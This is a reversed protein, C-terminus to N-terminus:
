SSPATRRAASASARSRSSLSRSRLSMARSWASRLCVTACISAIRFSMEFSSGHRRLALASGLGAPPLGVADLQREEALRQGDPGLRRGLVDGRERAVEFLAHLRDAASADLIRELGEQEGREVDTVLQKAGTVVAGARDAVHLRAQTGQDREQLAGGGRLLRLPCRRGGRLGGGLVLIGRPFGPDEDPPAAGPGESVLDAM